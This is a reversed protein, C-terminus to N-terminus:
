CKQKSDLQRKFMSINVKLISYQLLSHFRVEMLSNMYKVKIPVSSNNQSNVNGTQAYIINKFSQLPAHGDIM